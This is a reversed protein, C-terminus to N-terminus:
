LEKALKQCMLINAKHGTRIGIFHGKVPRGLTTLDGLLDLLKHRAPENDWKLSWSGEPLVLCEEMGRGILDRVSGAEFDMVYSRAPAMEVSFDDKGNLAFCASQTFTRRGPYDLLYTLTLAEAPLALLISDYREGGATFSDLVWCPRGVSVYDRPKGQSVTGAKLLADVFGIGSFGTVVPLYQSNVHIAINDINLGAVAALIHETHDVRVGGKALSTWRYDTRAYEPRCELRPRGPLDDRIFVIGSGPPAPTFLVNSYDKGTIDIGSVGVPKKITKQKIAM